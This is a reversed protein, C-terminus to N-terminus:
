EGYMGTIVGGLWAAVLPAMVELVAIEGRPMIRPRLDYHCLTGWPGSGSLRLPVGGYAIMSTRAPHSALRPDRGANRTVFSKGSECVLGCYGIELPNTTGSNDIAPNERDFLHINRLWPPDVRYVGTFRFRTRANLRELMARMGARRLVESLEGVVTNAAIEDPGNAKGDRARNKVDALPGATGVRTSRRKSTGRLAADPQQAREMM